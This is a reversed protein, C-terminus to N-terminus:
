GIKAYTGTSTINGNSVIFSYANINGVTINGGTSTMGGASFYAGTATLNGGTTGVGQGTLYGTVNANAYTGENGFLISIGNAYTFASGRLTTANITSTSINGLNANGDININGTIGVGGIVQLAGTASSTSATGSVIQLDTVTAANQTINAVTASVYDVWFSSTGDSIYQYYIDTDTKYWVDGPV